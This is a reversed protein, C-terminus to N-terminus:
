ADEEKIIEADIIEEDKKDILGSDKLGKKFEPSMILVIRKETVEHKEPAFGGKIKILDVLYKEQAHFDPYKTGGDKKVYFSELGEALKDAVKDDTLGKAELAKQLMTQIHSQKELFSGYGESVFGAKRAAVAKNDGALRNKVFKRQKITTEADKSLTKTM